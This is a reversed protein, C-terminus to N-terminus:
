KKIISNTFNGLYIVRRYAMAVLILNEYTYIQLTGYKYYFVMNLYKINVYNYYRM